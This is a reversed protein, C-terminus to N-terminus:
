LTVRQRRVTKCVPFKSLSPQLSGIFSPLIKLFAGSLIIYRHVYGRQSMTKANGFTGALQSGSDVSDQGEVPGDKRDDECVCHADVTSKM